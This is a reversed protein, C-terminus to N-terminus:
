RPEALTSGPWGWTTMAGFARSSEYQYDADALAAEVQRATLEGAVVHSTDVVVLPRTKRLFTACGRLIEIEAGEVDVKVLHPEGYQAVAEALTIAQVTTVRGSLGRPIIDAFSSGLAGEVNFRRMGSEAAIAKPVTVVNRLGYHEVNRRLLEFNLPDPEFAYV